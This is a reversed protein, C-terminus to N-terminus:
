RVTWCRRFRVSFDPRAANEDDGIEQRVGAADGAAVEFLHLAVHVVEPLLVLDQALQVKLHCGGVEGYRLQRPGLLEVHTIRSVGNRNASHRLRTVVSAPYLRCRAICASRATQTSGPAIWLPPSCSRISIEPLPGAQKRDDSRPRCM